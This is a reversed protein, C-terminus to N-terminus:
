RSLGLEYVHRVDQSNSLEPPPQHLESAIGQPTKGEGLEHEYGHPVESILAM